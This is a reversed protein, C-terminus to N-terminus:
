ETTNMRKRHFFRNLRFFIYVINHCVWFCLIFAIVGFSGATFWIFVLFALCAVWWGLVIQALSLPVFILILTFLFFFQTVTWFKRRIIWQLWRMKTSFLDLLSLILPHDIFIRSLFSEQVHDVAGESKHLAQLLIFNKPLESLGRWLCPSRCEPCHLCRQGLRTEVPLFELCSECVTHGCRLVRPVHVYDDFLNWCVPCEPVQMTNFPLIRQQWVNKEPVSAQM